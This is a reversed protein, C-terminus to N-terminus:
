DTVFAVAEFMEPACSHFEIELKRGPEADLGFSAVVFKEEEALTVLRETSSPEDEPTKKLQARAWDPAERGMADVMEQLMARDCGHEESRKGDPTLRILSAADSTDSYDISLVPAGARKALEAAFAETKREDEYRM